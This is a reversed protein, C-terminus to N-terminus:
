TDIPQKKESQLNLASSRDSRIKFKAFADDVSDVISPNSLLCKMDRTQTHGLGGEALLLDDEFYITM